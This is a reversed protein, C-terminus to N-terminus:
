PPNTLKALKDIRVTLQDYALKMHHAAMRDMLEALAEDQDKKLARCRLCGLQPKQWDDSCGQETHHPFFVAREM